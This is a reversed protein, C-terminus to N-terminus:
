ERGVLDDLTVSFLDALQILQSISPECHGNEWHSITQYSINLIKALDSQKLNKELRLVKLNSKLNM